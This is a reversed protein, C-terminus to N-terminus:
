RYIEKKNNLMNDFIERSSLRVTDSQTSVALAGMLAGMKGCREIPENELIGCLFGAGFADGAGVSDVVKTEIPPIFYSDTEDAVYAGKSNLKLAIKKVGLDRLKREVEKPEKTDLLIEAEEDGILVISSLPLLKTLFKKAEQKSWLKLRINPDFSIQMGSNRAFTVAEIVMEKATPSIAPTIGTIHLIKASKIYDLPIEHKALTTAASNERYYLVKTEQGTICQKFMIGTPNTKCKIVQSVDVNEARLERLIFEGFEDDGTKSIWGAKKNLKALGVALNSEAGALYKEFTTAYRIPENEKSSFAVMTEGITVCDLM